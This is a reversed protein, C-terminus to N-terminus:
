PPAREFRLAYVQPVFSDRDDTVRRAVLHGDDSHAPPPSM